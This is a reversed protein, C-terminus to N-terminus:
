KEVSRLKDVEDMFSNTIVGGAEDVIRWEKGIQAAEEPTAKEMRDFFAEARPKVALGKLRLWFGRNPLYKTAHRFMFREVLRDYVDVDKFSRM